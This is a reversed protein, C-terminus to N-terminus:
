AHAAQFTGSAFGDSCLCFFIPMPGFFFFFFITPTGVSGALHGLISIKFSIKLFIIIVAFYGSYAFVLMQSTSRDPGSKFWEGWEGRGLGLGIRDTKLLINSIKNLLEM